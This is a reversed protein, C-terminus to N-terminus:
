PKARRHKPEQTTGSHVNRWVMPPYEPTETENRPAGAPEKLDESERAYAGNQTGQNSRGAAISQSHFMAYSAYVITAAILGAIMSPRTRGGTFAMVVLWWFAGCLFSVLM